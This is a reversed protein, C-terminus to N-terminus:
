NFGHFAIHDRTSDNIKWKAPDAALHYVSNIDIDLQIDSSKRFKEFSCHTDFDANGISEEIRGQPHGM